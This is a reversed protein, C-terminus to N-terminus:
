HNQIPVTLCIIVGGEPVPRVAFSGGIDEM